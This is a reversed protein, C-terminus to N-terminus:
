DRLSTVTDIYSKATIFIVEIGIQTLQDEEPDSLSDEVFALLDEEPYNEFFTDKAADWNKSSERLNWNKEEQDIMIDMDFSPVGKELSYANYIVDCIFSLEKQETENLASFAESLLYKSIQSDSYFTSDALISADEIVKEITQEPIM